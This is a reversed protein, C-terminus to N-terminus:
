PWEGSLAQATGPLKALDDASKLLRRLVLVVTVAGMFISAVGVSATEVSQGFLKIHTDGKAGLYVLIVGLSGFIGGLFMIGIAVPVYLSRTLLSRYSSYNQVERRGDPFRRSFSRSM